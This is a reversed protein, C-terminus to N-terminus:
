KRCPISITRSSAFPRNRLLTSKAFYIYGREPKKTGPFMRICGREPTQYWPVDAGAFLEHVSREETQNAPGSRVYFIGACIESALHHRRGHHEGLVRVPVSREVPVGPSHWTRRGRASSPEVPAYGKHCSSKTKIHVHVSVSPLWNLLRWTM